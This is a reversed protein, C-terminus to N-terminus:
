TREYIYRHIEAPKGFYMVSKQDCMSFGCKELVRKSAKNEAHCIGWLRSLAMKDMIHPMFLRVAAAAYGHGRYEAGIHYGIEWDKGGDDLPSIEVHGIFRGDAEFVPYVQPGAGNHQFALLQAIADAAEQATEFVEDPLYARNDADLSLRSLEGALDPTWQGIYIEGSAPMSFEM